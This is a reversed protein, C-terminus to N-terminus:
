IPFRHPLYLKWARTLGAGCCKPDVNQFGDLGQIESSRREPNGIM